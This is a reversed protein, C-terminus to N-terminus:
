NGETAQDHAKLFDHGQETLEFDGRCGCDCGSLVGRKILKSAKALIVKWPVDPMAPELDWTFVWRTNTHAWLGDHSITDILRLFEADDLDKAQM